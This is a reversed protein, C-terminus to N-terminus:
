ERDKTVTVTFSKGDVMFSAQNGNIDYPELVNSGRAIAFVIMDIVDQSDTM